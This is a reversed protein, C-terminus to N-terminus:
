FHRTEVIADFEIGEGVFKRAKEVIFLGLVLGPARWNHFVEIIRMCEDLPHGCVVLQKTSKSM